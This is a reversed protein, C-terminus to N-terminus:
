LPLSKRFDRPCRLLCWSRAEGDALEVPTPSWFHVACAGVPSPRIPSRKWRPTFLVSVTLSHQHGSRLQLPPHHAIRAAFACSCWTSTQSLWPVLMATDVEFASWTVFFVPQERSLIVDAVASTCGANRRSTLVADSGCRSPHM